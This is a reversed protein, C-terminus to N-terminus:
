LMIKENIHSLQMANKLNGKLTQINGGVEM